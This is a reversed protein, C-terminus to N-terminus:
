KRVRVSQRLACAVRPLEGAMRMRWLAILREGDAHKPEVGLNKYGHLTSKPIYTVEGIAALTMGHMHLDQIVQWWDVCQGPRLAFARARSSDDDTAGARDQTDFM